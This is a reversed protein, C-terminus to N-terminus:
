PKKIEIIEGNKYKVKLLTEGESDLYNRSALDGAEDYGFEIRIFQSPLSDEVVEIREDVMDGDADVRTISLVRDGQTEILYYNDLDGMRNKEVPESGVPLNDVDEFEEYFTAVVPLERNEWKWYAFVGIAAIIVVAGIAWVVWSPIGSGKKGGSQVRGGAQPKGDGQLDALMEACNAYRASPNKATAKDIVKQSRDSVYQYSNKLRPLPEKLIKEKVEMPKLSPDYPYRGSMMEYMVVGLSYIDARQDIPRDLVREPSVYLTAGGKQAIDKDRDVDSLIQAIGFDLIKPTGSKDILINKPTIDRHVIGRQHAYSLASLLKTMLPIARSEIILGNKKHIFEDLSMGDVYEMILFVGEENEVFNLFKVINPHNMESLMVAEQRFRARLEPNSAYHPHLVKIAVKQGIVPNQALYVRGMGGEGILSIVDYNLIRKNSIM